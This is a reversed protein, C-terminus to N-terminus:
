RAQRTLGQDLKLLRALRAQAGGEVDKKNINGQLKYTKRHDM